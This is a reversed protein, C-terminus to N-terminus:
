WSQVSAMICGVVGGIFDLERDLESDSKIMRPRVETWLTNM